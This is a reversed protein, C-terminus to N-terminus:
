ARLVNKSTFKLLPLKVKPFSVSKPGLTRQAAQCTWCYYKNSIILEVVVVVVVVVLFVLAPPPPRGM